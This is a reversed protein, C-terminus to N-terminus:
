GNVCQKYNTKSSSEGQKESAKEDHRTMCVAPTIGQTEMSTCRTRKAEKGTMIQRKCLEKALATISPWNSEVLAVIAHAAEHYAVERLQNTKQMRIVTKLQVLKEPDEPAVAGTRRTMQKPLSTRFNKVKM